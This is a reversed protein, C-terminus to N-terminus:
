RAALAPVPGPSSGNLAVEFFSDYEALATAPLLTREAYRRASAGLAVAAGNSKVSLIADRLAHVDDPQVVYGAGAAEM